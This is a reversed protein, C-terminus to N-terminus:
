KPTPRRGGKLAHLVVEWPVVDDPNDRHDALREELLDRHWQPVPVQDPNAAMRDWLAQLYDLKEEAPLDDFGPPPLPISHPM